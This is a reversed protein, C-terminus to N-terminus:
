YFFSQVRLGTVHAHVEYYRVSVHDGSKLKGSIVIAYFKIYLVLFSSFDLIISASRQFDM